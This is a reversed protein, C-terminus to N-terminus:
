LRFVLVNAYTSLRARATLGELALRLRGSAAWAYRGKFRYAYELQFFHMGYPPEDAAQAAFSIELHDYAWYAPFLEGDNVVFATPPGLYRGIDAATWATTIPGLAGTRLFSKLSVTVASM